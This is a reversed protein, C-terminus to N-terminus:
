TASIFNRSDSDRAVTAKLAFSTITTSILWWARRADNIKERGVAGFREPRLQDPRCGRARRTVLTITRPHRDARLTSVTKGSVKFIATV